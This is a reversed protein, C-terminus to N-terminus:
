TVRLEEPTEPPSVNKPGVAAPTPEMTVRATWGEPRGTFRDFTGIPTRVPVLSGLWPPLPRDGTTPLPWPLKEFVTSPECRGRANTNVSLM